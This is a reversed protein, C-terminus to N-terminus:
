CPAQFQCIFIDVFQLQRFSLGHARCNKARVPKPEKEERALFGAKVYVHMV